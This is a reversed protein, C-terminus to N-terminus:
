PWLLFHVPNKNQSTPLITCLCVLIIKRKILVVIPIKNKNYGHILFIFALFFGAKALSSSILKLELDFDTVSAM